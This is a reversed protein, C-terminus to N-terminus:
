PLPRQRYLAIRLSPRIRHRRPGGRHQAPRLRPGDHLCGGARDKPGRSGRSGPPGERGARALLTAWYRGPGRRGCLAAPGTGTPHARHGPTLVLAILLVALRQIVRLNM